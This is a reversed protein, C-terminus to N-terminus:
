GAGLIEVRDHFGVDDDDDARVRGLPMRHKRRLHLAAQAFAGLEDDDVRALDREDLRVCM